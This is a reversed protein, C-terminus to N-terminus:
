GPPVPMQSFAISSGRGTFVYERLAQPASIMFADTGVTLRKPGRLPFWQGLTGGLGGTGLVSVRDLPAALCVRAQIGGRLPANGARERRQRMILYVGVGIVAILTLVPVLGM